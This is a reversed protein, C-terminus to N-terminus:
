VRQPVTLAARLEADHTASPDMLIQMCSQSSRLIYPSILATRMPGTAYGIAGVKRHLSGITWHVQGVQVLLNWSVYKLINTLLVADYPMVSMSLSRQYVHLHLKERQYLFHLNSWCAPSNITDHEVTEGMSVIARRSHISKQLKEICLRIQRMAIPGYAGVWKDGTLFRDAHVNYSRLIGAEETDAFFHLVNAHAWRLDCLVVNYHVDLIYQSGFEAEEYVGTAPSAVDGSQRQIRASAIDDQMRNYVEIASSM